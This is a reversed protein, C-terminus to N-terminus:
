FLGSIFYFCRFVDFYKLFKPFHQKRRTNQTKEVDTFGFHSKVSGFQLARRARDSDPSLLASVHALRLSFALIGKSNKTMKQIKQVLRSNGDPSAVSIFGGHRLM